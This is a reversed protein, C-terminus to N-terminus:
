MLVYDLCVKHTAGDFLSSSLCEKRKCSREYDGIIESVVDGNVSIYSEADETLYKDIIM